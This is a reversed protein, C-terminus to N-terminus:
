AEAPTGGPEERPAESERLWGDVAFPGAGTVLLYSALGFLTIHALVPDDPLGFLTLTFISLAVLSGARTFLGAVLAAGLAAETLGAGVVWLGPDVPVVATLDYKEVVALAQAPSLLKQTVGLFVFNLGLGVRVITPVYREYPDVARNVWAAARHVPDIEGYLTGEASALRNLVDDASPRGSGILAMALLGSVYENALLLEPTTALAALYVVLAVIATVRTALGFLLLFGVAIQFLRSPAFAVALFPDVSPSFFYGAFGAGVLPLGFSLRLLWPLLDRYEAMTERFVAVDRRAPRVRLYGVAVAVVALGGGALLAANLPESFVGLLFAAADGQESTDSVYDVHGAARGAAIGLAFVAAALALVPSARRRM